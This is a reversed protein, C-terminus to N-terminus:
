HGNCCEHKYKVLEVFINMGDMILYRVLISCETLLGIRRWQDMSKIWVNLGFM